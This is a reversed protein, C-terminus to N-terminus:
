ASVFPSIAFWALRARESVFDSAKAQEVLAELTVGAAQLENEVAARVDDDDAVEVHIELQAPTM